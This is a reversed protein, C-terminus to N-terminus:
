TKASLSRVIGLVEEAHGKIRTVPLVAAISGDPAVVFTTRILGRYPRGFLKKDGWVGYAAIAVHDPDAALHSKLGYRARFRAHDAVTDPSIGLVDASLADFEAALNSFECNEVTCGETDDQPYFFLVVFRGRHDALNFVAGTDTTLVFGPASDNRALRTRTM